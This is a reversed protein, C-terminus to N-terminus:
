DKALRARVAADKAELLKRLAVTREPNRPLDAVLSMALGAFPRSIEQLAAPLHEFSFFQLIHEEPMLEETRGQRPDVADLGLCRAHPGAPGQHGPASARERPGECAPARHRLPDAHPRELLAGWETA